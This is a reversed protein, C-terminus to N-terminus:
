EEEAKTMQDYGSYKYLQFVVTYNAKKCIFMKGTITALTLSFVELMSLEEAPVWRLHRFFLPLLSKTRLTRGAKIKRVQSKDGKILAILNSFCLLFLFLLKLHHYVPSQFRPISYHM